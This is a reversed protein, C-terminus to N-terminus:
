NLEMMSSAIQVRKVPSEGTLTIQVKDARFAPLRFADKNSTGTHSNFVTNNRYYDVTYDCVGDIVGCSLGAKESITFVKSKWTFSKYAANSRSYVVLNGSPNVLYIKDNLNDAYCAIASIDHKSYHGTTVDFVFGGNNTFYWYKGNFHCAVANADVYERWEDKDIVGEIINRNDQGAIALLGDNSPYIVFAGMDAVAKPSFCPETIDLMMPSMAEPTGGVILYPNKDTLVVLGSAASAMALINGDITIEYNVPWAHPLYAKSFCVVNNEYGALVGGPLATLGQMGARPKSNVTNEAIQDLEEGLVSEDFPMTLDLSLATNLITTHYRYNGSYDAIYIRRHTWHGSAPANPMTITITGGEKLQFPLAAESPASLEGWESEEVFLVSTVQIDDGTALTSDITITGTPADIGLDHKITEISAYSGVQPPNNDSTLYIRDFDDQALPSTVWRENSEGSVMKNVGDRFLLRTISNTLETTGVEISAELDKFPVISGKITEANNAFTAVEDPLLESEIATVASKFNYIDIKM